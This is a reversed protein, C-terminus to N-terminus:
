QRQAARVLIERALALAFVGICVLSHTQMYRVRPSNYVTPFKDTLSDPTSGQLLKRLLVRRITILVDPVSRRGSHRISPDRARTSSSSTCARADPLRCLSLILSQSIGPGDPHVRSIAPTTRL